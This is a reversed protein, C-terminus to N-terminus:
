SPSSRVPHPWLWPFGSLLWGAMEISIGFTRSIQPLVGIVGLETTILGFAGLALVSSRFM